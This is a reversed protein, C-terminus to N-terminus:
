LQAPPMCLSLITQSDASLKQSFDPQDAAPFAWRQRWRTDAKRTKPIFGRSLCVARKISPFHCSPGIHDGWVTKYTHQVLRLQTFCRGIGQDKIRFGKLRLDHSEWGNNRIQWIPSVTVLRASQPLSWLCPVCLAECVAQCVTREWYIFLEALLLPHRCSQQAPPRTLRPFNAMPQSKLNYKFKPATLLKRLSSLANLATHSNSLAAPAHNRWHCCLVLDFKGPLVHGRPKCLARLDQGM